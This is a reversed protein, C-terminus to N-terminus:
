EIPEELFKLKPLSVPKAYHALYQGQKEGIDIRSHRKYPRGDLKVRALMVKRGAESWKRQAEIQKISKIRRPPESFVSV